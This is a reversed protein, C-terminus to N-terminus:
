MIEFFRRQFYFLAPDNIRRFWCNPAQIKTINIKKSDRFFKRFDATSSLYFPEFGPEPLELRRLQMFVANAMLPFIFFNGLQFLGSLM